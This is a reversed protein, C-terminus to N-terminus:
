RVQYATSYMMKLLSVFLHYRIDLMADNTSGRHVHSSISLADTVGGSIKVFGLGAIFYLDCLDDVIVADIHIIYCILVFSEYKVYM